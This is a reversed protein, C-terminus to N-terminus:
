STCGIGPYVNYPKLPNGLDGYNLVHPQVIKKELQSM